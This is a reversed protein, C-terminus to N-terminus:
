SLAGGLVEIALELTMPLFSMRAHATVRNLAGALEPFNAKVRHAIFDVVDDPIRVSEREAIYRVMAIRLELGPPRIGVVLGWRFRSKLHKELGPLASPPRSSSMVIQKGAAYLANFTHFYEKQTHEKGVVFHVDDVLLFDLQRYKAEFEEVTGNRIADVLERTFTVSPVYLVTAGHALALNRVAHLLHTKGLGVGGHIYLPNYAQGPYEAVAFAAAHALRSSKGCIFTDFTYRSILGPEIGPRPALRMSSRYSEGARDRLEQVFRKVGHHGNSTPYPIVHIGYDRRLRNRQVEGASDQRILAYHPRGHGKFASRMEDLLLKLDPDTLSTGVFLVTKTLFLSTLYDRYAPNAFMVDRYDGRGLVITDIRDISGHLKLIYFANRSGLTSLELADAQTYSPPVGHEESAYAHELLRDYNTTVVAAFHIQPLLRHTSTPRIQDDRFVETMFQVFRQDGMRERLEDAVLLFNGERILRRLERKVGSLCVDRQEAWVMMRGMLEPWGPLGAAVSLGAGVFLICDGRAVDGVLDKPIHYVSDRGM